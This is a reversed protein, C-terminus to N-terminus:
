LGLFDAGGDEETRDLSIFSGRLLTLVPWHIMCCGQPWFLALFLGTIPLPCTSLNRPLVGTPLPLGLSTTKLSLPTHFGKSRESSLWKWCPTWPFLFFSWMLTHSRGEWLSLPLFLFYPLSLGASVLQCKSPQFLLSSSLLRQILCFPRQEGLLWPM